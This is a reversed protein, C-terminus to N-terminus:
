EMREAQDVLILFTKDWRICDWLIDKTYYEEFEEASDFYDKEKEYYSALGEEYEKESLEVELLRSAQICGMDVKVREKADSLATKEMEEETTNLYTKIYEEYSIGTGEAALRVEERYKEVYADVEADPYKKVTIGDLFANLVATAKAEEKAALLDERLQDKFDQVTQFGYNEFSQVFEDTCEAIHHQFIATITGGCLVTKGALAGYTTKDNPCTYEIEYYEGVKGGLMEKALLATSEEYGSFGVIVSLGEEGSDKMVTGDCIMSYEMDVRNYMEVVGNEKETFEAYSLMVEFLADEVEKDTCVTPDDFKAQIKKYEKLDVYEALDYDYRKSSFESCSTLIPLGIALLCLLSFFRKM